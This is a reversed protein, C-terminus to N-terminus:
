RLTFIRDEKYDQAYDGMKYAPCGSEKVKENIMALMVGAAYRAAGQTDGPKCEKTSYHVKVGAPFLWSHAKMYAPGTNTGPMFRITITMFCPAYEPVYGIIFTWGNDQGRVGPVAPASAVIGWSVSKNANLKAIMKEAAARHNQESSLAADYSVRVWGNWSKARIHGNSYITHITQM